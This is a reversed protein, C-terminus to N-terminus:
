RELLRHLTVKADPPAPELEVLKDRGREGTVIRVQNRRVGFATALAACVAANAQGEVARARVGVVLTDSAAWRGGVSERSVGPKVRIAFRFATV